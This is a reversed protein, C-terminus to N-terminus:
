TSATTRPSRRARGDLDQHVVGAAAAGEALVGGLLLPVLREREVERAVALEGV